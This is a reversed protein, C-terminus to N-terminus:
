VADLSLVVVDSQGNSAANSPVVTQVLDGQHAQLLTAHIKDGLRGARMDEPHGPASWSDHLLQGSWSQRVYRLRVRSLDTFPAGNGQRLQVVASGTVPDPATSAVITPAAGPANLSVVPLTWRYAGARLM